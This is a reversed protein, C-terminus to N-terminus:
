TDFMVSCHDFKSSVLHSVKFDPFLDTWKSNAVARDLREQMMTRKSKGRKWTFRSDAYGLDALENVELAERFAEMQRELRPQGGKKENSWLIENFDGLCVWPMTNNEGLRRLMSWTNNRLNTVPKGYVGIIRWKNGRKDSVEGDIHYKSFSRLEVEVKDKWMLALGGSRGEVDVGIVSNYNCRRRVRDLKDDKVSTESLLVVEPGERLIKLLSRITRPNRLGPCNGAICRMTRPPVPKSQQSSSM